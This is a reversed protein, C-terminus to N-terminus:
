ENKMPIRFIRPIESYIIESFRRPDIVGFISQLPPRNAENFQKLGSQQNDLSRELIQRYQDYAQNSLEDNGM